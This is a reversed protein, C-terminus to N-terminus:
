LLSKPTQGIAAEGSGGMGEGLVLGWGGAMSSSRETAAHHGSWARCSARTPTTVCTASAWEGPQTEARLSQMVWEGRRGGWIGGREKLADGQDSAETGEGSGGKAIAQARLTVTWPLGPATDRGETHPHLHCRSCKDKDM